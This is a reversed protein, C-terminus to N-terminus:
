ELLLMWSDQKRTDRRLSELLDEKYMKFSEDREFNNEPKLLEDLQISYARINQDITCCAIPRFIQSGIGACDM